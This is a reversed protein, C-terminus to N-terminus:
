RLFTYNESLLMGVLMFMKMDLVKWTLGMVPAPPSDGGSIKRNERNTQAQVDSNSSTRGVM